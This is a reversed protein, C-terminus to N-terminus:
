FIAATCFLGSISMLMSPRFDFVAWIMFVCFILNIADCGHDFLQGLPSSTGTRRAQKGDVADLAMYALLVFAIYFHVWQPCSRAMFDSTILAAVFGSFSFSFGILTIMNPRYFHFCYPLVGGM